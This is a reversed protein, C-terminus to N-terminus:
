PVPQHDFSLVRALKWAGDVRRWLHVFRAVTVTAAGREVFRHEGTQVAGYGAIPYVHTSGGVVQRTVGQGRPCNRTLRRFSERVQAGREAGTRDHYFEVDDALLANVRAADCSVFAADFLLSDMRALEDYLAGSTSSDAPAAATEDVRVGEMVGDPMRVALRTARGNLVTFTVLGDPAAQPRFADGGQYLLRTPQNGGIQGMLGAGGDYVRLSVPQQGQAPMTLRYTGVYHQREAATLPLDQAAAPASQAHAAAAGGALLAVALAFPAIPLFGPRRM